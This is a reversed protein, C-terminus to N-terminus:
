VERPDIGNVPCRDPGKLRNQQLVQLVFQLSVITAPSGTDVLAETPVGNVAMSAFGTPGLWPRWEGSAPVDLNMEGVGKIM